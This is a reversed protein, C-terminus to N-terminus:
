DVPLKVDGHYKAAGTARKIVGRMLEESADLGTFLKFQLAAQRVFMDVGTVVVCHRQRAEKVLLTTEPNYVTDLVVMHPKLYLKDYPSDDVQPHMGVPTCNVLVDVFFNHRAGWDVAKCGVKEALKEARQSTRSALVVEAGRRALGYAVAKAAGGAGLVLATKGDLWRQQDAPPNIVTALSDMAARYDTNYGVLDRGEFVITNAAGVGRVAGDIRALRRLVAEKHPITVSLGRIGLDAADDLFADLHERPVRFPLYVKNLGAQKLATNHVLPSLSQGVPDGIVGYVETQEDISDYGYLGSMQEFSLQGPALGREHHFTAYTLPSGARGTLLRSPVGIDGM